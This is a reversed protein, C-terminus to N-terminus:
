CETVSGTCSYFVKDGFHNKLTSYKETGTCHCVGISKPMNNSFFYIINNFQVDTCSKTHFGGLVLNLPLNFHDTASKMINTIGRHSCGTIISLQGDIVIALYLEDLFEENFNKFHTDERNLVPIDPVIFVGCDIETIDTIFEVRNELLKADCQMGIDNNHSDYKKSLAERKMLVKAKTNARLFSSLGGTHDYHGHSIVVLDIEDIKVGMKNANLLFSDSQGTDFLIKRTDSEIYISLGHEALLGRKYVLNEILTTIKM